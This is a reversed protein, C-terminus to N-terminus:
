CPLEANALPCFHLAFDRLKDDKVIASQFAGTIIIEGWNEQFFQLM